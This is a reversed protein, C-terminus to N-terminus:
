CWWTFPPDATLTLGTHGRKVLGYPARCRISLLNGNIVEKPLVHSLILTLASIQQAMMNENEVAGGFYAVDNANEGLACSTLKTNWFLLISEAMKGITM